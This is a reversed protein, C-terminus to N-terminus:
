REIPRGSSSPRLDHAFTQTPLSCGIRPRKTRAQVARGPGDRTARDQQDRALAQRLGKLFRCGHRVWADGQPAPRAGEDTLEVIRDWRWWPPTWPCRPSVHVASRDGAAM